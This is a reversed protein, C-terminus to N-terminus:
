NKCRSLRSGFEKIRLDIGNYVKDYFLEKTPHIETKWKDSDSGLFYNNYKSYPTKGTIIADDNAGLFEFKIAHHHEINDALSDSSGHPGYIGSRDIFHFTIGTQELFAAGDRIDVKYNFTGNWQGKNEVFGQSFLNSCLFLLSFTIFLIIRM